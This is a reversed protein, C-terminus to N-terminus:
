EKVTKPDATTKEEDNNQEMKNTLLLSPLIILLAALTIILFGVHFAHLQILGMQQQIFTHTHVSTVPYKGSAIGQKLLAAHVSSYGAIVTTVIATGFASGINQITRSGLSAAPIQTPTMGTYSDAMLPTLIGGAGIGRIFLIIAVLWYTTNQDIWYFPLTGVATILASIIVVMKAGIDDTLRGTIPRSVLMGLGQPILALGAEMASMHNINQFFLPLALMAGNLIMGSVLLGLVSGNFSSFKFLNLPLVAQKKRIIGWIIYLGLFAAGFGIWAMTTFNNFRAEKSAQVIGYIVSASGAGLLVIGPLDLKATRNQAPYSPMKWFIMVVSLATIPVNIWFIWRWSLLKVIM